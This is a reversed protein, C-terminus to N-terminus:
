SRRPKPAKTRSSERQPRAAPKQGRGAMHESGPTPEASRKPGPAPKAGAGPKPVKGSKREPRSKTDNDTKPGAHSRPMGGPKPGFGAKGAGGSRGSRGSKGSKSMGPIQPRAISVTIVRDILLAGDLTEVVEPLDVEASMRVYACRKFEGTEPDIILRLSTVKGMVSFLKWLDEESANDSIHGVYLEKAM